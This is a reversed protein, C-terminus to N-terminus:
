RREGPVAGRRSPVLRSDPRTRWGKVLPAPEAELETQEDEVAESPSKADVPEMTIEDDTLPTCASPCFSEIREIQGAEGVIVDDGWDVPKPLIQGSIAPRKGSGDRPM